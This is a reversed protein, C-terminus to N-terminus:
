ADKADTDRRAERLARDGARPHRKQNKNTRVSIPSLTWFISNCSVFMDHHANTFPHQLRSVGRDGVRRFSQIAHMKDRRTLVSNACLPCPSLEATQGSKPTFRVHSRSSAAGAQSGDRALLRALHGLPSGGNLPVRASHLVDLPPFFSLMVELRTKTPVLKWGTRM